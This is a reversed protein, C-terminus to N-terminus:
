LAIKRSESKNATAFEKWWWLLVPCGFAVAEAGFRLAQASFGHPLQPAKEQILLLLNNESFFAADVAVVAVCSFLAVGVTGAIKKWIKSDKWLNPQKKELAVGLYLVNFWSSLSTALAVSAAGMGWGFILVANLGINMGVALASAITPTRYDERAYFAPAMTLILGMPVLGCSYAWLCYTTALTSEDTFDGRGYLLNICTDGTIFLAFAFPILLLACRQISTLIFNSYRTLNGSHYARSLPPLLAGSFAVGILGLPLQQVRMAYWLYAPGSEDAVRAFVADLANNISRFLM